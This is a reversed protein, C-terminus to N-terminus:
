NIKSSLLGAGVRDQSTGAPGWHWYKSLGRDAEVPFAQALEHEPVAKGGNLM